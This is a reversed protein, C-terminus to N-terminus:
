LGMNIFRLAWDYFLFDIRSRLVAFFTLAAGAILVGFAFTILGRGASGVGRLLRNGLAGLPGQGQATYHFASLVAITGLVLLAADLARAWGIAGGGYSAPAVPIVAARLQPVLSGTLAGGLALGAGTGVMLALPLNALPALPRIGRVFLLIGLAFFLAYHWHAGPEAILLQLRPWLVLSWALSAAYGAAVGVFLYEALRFVPNDGVVYSLVALTLIAAVWVGLMELWGALSPALQSLAEIM